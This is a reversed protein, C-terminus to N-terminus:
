DFLQSVILLDLFMEFLDPVKIERVPLMYM